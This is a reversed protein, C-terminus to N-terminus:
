PKYLSSQLLQERTAPELPDETGDSRSCLVCILVIGKEKSSWAYLVPGPDCRDCVGYQVWICDKILQNVQAIAQPDSNWKGQISSQLDALTLESDELPWRSIDGELWSFSQEFAEELEQNRHRLKALAERLKGLFNLKWSTPGNSRSNASQIIIHRLETSTIM